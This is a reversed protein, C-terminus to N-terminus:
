KNGSSLTHTYFQYQNRGIKKAEYMAIDANKVLTDIDEGDDPYIAIGISTTIPLIQNDIAVPNQFDELIKEAIAHVDDTQKLDTFILMFEDGGMRAITDGKRTQKGLKGAVAQLLLDGVNHGYTDNV